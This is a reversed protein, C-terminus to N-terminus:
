FRGIKKRPSYCDVMAIILMVTKDKIVYAKDDTFGVNGIFRLDLEWKGTKENKEAEWLDGFENPEVSNIWFNLVTKQAPNLVIINM